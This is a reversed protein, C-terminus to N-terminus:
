QNKIINALIMKQDWAVRHGMVDGVQGGFLRAMVTMNTKSIHAKGDRGEWVAFTCPMMAAIDPNSRLVIEAYTPRCMSVLKVRPLFAGNADVATGCLETVNTVSWGANTISRQLASVTEDFGTRSEYTLIMRGPLVVYFILAACLLAGLVAGVIGTLWLMHRGYRVSAQQEDEGTEKEDPKTEDQSM